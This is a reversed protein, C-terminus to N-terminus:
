SPGKCGGAGLNGVVDVSAVEISGLPAAAMGAGPDGGIAYLFRAATTADAAAAVLARRGIVLDTGAKPSSLNFSSNTVGIASYSFSTGDANTLVLVCVAGAPLASGDITAPLTCAGSMDCSVMGTTVPPSALPNGAADECTLALTPANFSRGSVTVTQGTANVISSPTVNTVVPPEDAVVGFADTLLGVGGDPNVVVLDYRHVPQGKPVVATLTADDAFAVSELPIAVDDAAPNTPNLFARPTAVFPQDAPAPAAKDRFISVATDSDTWAYGPRIEEISVTLDATVTLAAALTAVCSTSDVLKLDYAGPPQDKPIVVQVRNPHNPVPTWTLQTVPAAQGAPVITVADVPLPLTLTTAYVTVRTNIGNYVVEPDAFFVIPGPVIAVAKHPATDFCGDPNTVVVDYTDGVDGGAETTTTVQTGDANVMTGMAGITGQGDQGVLEVTPTEVFGTGDIELTSGGACVSGPKVGTVVPPDNVVLAVNEESSCDAPPPNTVVVPYTGATFTGQPIVFTLSTCTEVIGEVFTGEVPTCGEVATATFMMGGVSVSPLLDGIKLFGSGTITLTQDSQADCISSASLAGISPPPVVVVTIPDTSACSAPAPNTVTVSYSGAPLSGEIVKATVSTCSQIVGEDLKGPLEVCGDVSFAPYDVEGIRVIPLQDGVKLFGSGTVTVDVDEQADCFIDPQVATAVPPPVALLAGDLTDAHVGDPNTVTLSYLGPAVALAEDIRFRMQQESDWLVYSAAPNAPDDPIDVKGDSPAGTLDVTRSLSIAPLVLEAPPTLTKSPMPRMGDGTVAIETTLQETCVLDPAADTLVVEPSVIEHGCSIVTLALIAVWVRAIARSTM